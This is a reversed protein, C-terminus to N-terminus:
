SRAASGIHDRRRTGTVRRRRQRESDINPADGVTQDRHSAAASRGRERQERRGDNGRCDSRRRQLHRRRSGATATEQHDVSDASLASAAAAHAAVGVPVSSAVSRWRRGTRPRDRRSEHCRSVQTSAPRSEWCVARRWQRRHDDPRAGAGHITSTRLFEARRLITLNVYTGAPVNVIDGDARQRRVAERLTCDLPRRVGTPVDDRRRTSTSEDPRHSAPLPWCSCRSRRGRDRASIAVDARWRGISRRAAVTTTDVRGSRSARIM